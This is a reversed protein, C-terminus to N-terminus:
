AARRAAENRARTLLSRGHFSEALLPEGEIIRLIGALELPEILRLNRSTWQSLFKRHHNSLTGAPRRNPEPRHTTPLM